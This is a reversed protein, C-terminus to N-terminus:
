ILFYFLVSTMYGMICRYDINGITKIKSIFEFLSNSSNVIAPLDNWLLSGRFHVATMGYCFSRFKLLGLTPSKRLKYPM